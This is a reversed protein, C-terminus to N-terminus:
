SVVYDTVLWTGLWLHLGLSLPWLHLSTSGPWAVSCRLPSYQNLISCQNSPPWRPSVSPVRFSIQGLTTEDVVFKVDYSIPNFGSGHPSFSFDLRRFQLMVVHDHKPPSPPQKVICEVDLNPPTSHYIWSNLLIPLVAFTVYDLHYGQVQRSTKLFVVYFRVLSLNFHGPLSEIRAGRSYSDLNNGSRWGARDYSWTSVYIWIPLHFQINYSKRKLSCIIVDSAV